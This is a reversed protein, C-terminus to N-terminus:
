FLDRLLNKNNLIGFYLIIYIIYNTSDENM